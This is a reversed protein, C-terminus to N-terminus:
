SGHSRTDPVPAPTAAVPAVTTSTTPTSTAVEATLETRVTTAVPTAAVHQSTLIGTLALAGLASSAGVVRRARRAPHPRRRTTM